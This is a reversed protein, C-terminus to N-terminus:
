ARPHSRQYVRVLRERSLHTYRQTTSLSAHGLLEQVARLDAGGDLLHTAFSHRVGHPHLRELGPVAAIRQLLLRRVSRDTLRSGRRNIFLAPSQALKARLPLYRHLAQIAPQGLLVVREKRRKGMVWVLAEEMHVDAVDVQVCESVRV